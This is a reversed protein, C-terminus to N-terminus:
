EPIGWIRVTGDSGASALFRGDPSWAVSVAQKQIGKSRGCCGDMQRTGSASQATVQDQPSSADTLRGRSQFVARTHGELTRLAGHAQTGSASLADSGSALFRGDPSWAVSWVTDTHGELTRLLRGDAADWVRVTNDRSGSALYRGDPSWAVSWVWNQIGKSRGCSSGQGRTGSASQTTM